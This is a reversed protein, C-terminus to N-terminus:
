IGKKDYDTGGFLAKKSNILDDLGHAIDTIRSKKCTRLTSWSFEKKFPFLLKLENLRLKRWLKVDTERCALVYILVSGFVISISQTNREYGEMNNKPGNLDLSVTCSYRMYESFNALDNNGIYIRFYDPISRKLYFAKLDKKPTVQTKGDSQEAVMSKLVVWESISRQTNEDIEINEGNMTAIFFPKVSEEIDSMWGNNCEECVVRFKLTLLNGSRELTKELEPVNKPLGSYIENIYKDKPCKEVYGNLWNPWLHEKSLKKEEQCFICRKKQNM